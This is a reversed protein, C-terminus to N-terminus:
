AIVGLKKVKTVTGKYELSMLRKAHISNFAEFQKRVMENSNALKLTVQFKMKVM